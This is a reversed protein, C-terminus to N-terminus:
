EGIFQVDDTDNFANLQEPIIDNPHVFPREITEKYIENFYRLVAVGDGWSHEFNIGSIGDKTIIVSLSKDFWRNEGNSHLFNRVLSINDDDNDVNYTTDDLNICFLASDILNMSKENDSSIKLLHKRLTAWKNRNETTLVGIPNPNPKSIKNDTLIKNLDRM